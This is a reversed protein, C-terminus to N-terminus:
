LAESHAIEFLETPDRWVLFAQLVSSCANQESLRLAHPIISKGLDCNLGIRQFFLSFFFLRAKSLILAAIM